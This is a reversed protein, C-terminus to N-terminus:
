ATPPKGEALELLLMALLHAANPQALESLKRGLTGAKDPHDLLDTLPPMLARSDEKLVDENVLRVAKRDALVQANKLQHGGTLQPNPVVVCAKAQAAFEAMSSGGARAVVVDSVGSYQYLNSVFGKIIVRHQQDHPLFQKYSRRVGEELERGTVNVLILDPYRELLEMACGM